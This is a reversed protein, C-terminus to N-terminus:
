YGKFPNPGMRLVDKIFQDILEPVKDYEDIAVEYQEVREPEIGLQNLTEAINEKRRNCIESGKVFHCQYDDGYKCGLLMVGDTGRSMADKIWIANVSGLCRVPMIRVFPSWHKGRIAAMDLAPYADNECAMILIRPGGENIDDPVNYQRVVDSMMGIGYNDFSIVREPCAGMCTGCRRCRNFNPLPTGKEDDDLAGFPCEETCRKCQTCRVFNFVPYSPDGSRPHVSVGRNVSELCQIAKLAAGAADETAYDMLMPQRVAGAAYVGTRRTEYPFCIYNSDTFGEFLALDPFAPGQRYDFHVVAEKASTPVIGTPLVVMDVAVEIDGGFLSDSVKVVLGGDAEEVATVRGKSLMMGPKDQASKYYKEYVGQVVMSDYFVYAISDDSKELVYNAQKLAVVSSVSNTMPLHQYGEWDKQEIVEVEVESHPDGEGEVEASLECEALDKYIRGGPDLASLDLIFAVKKAPSGDSPKAINGEKAMIEFERSTVVNKIAGYGLPKLYKTNQPKWGTAMVVSGVSVAEEGSGTKITATYQGPQGKLKTLESSKMVKIRENGEVEAILKDLGTDHAETYPHALPVTKYFNKAAGGLEAEREVLITDYGAKATNLAANLGTWGGGLVLITRNLEEVDLHPVKGTKLKAMGMNIYDKAIGVLEEPAEEDLDVPTGDADQYCLICQERLNVRETLVGDFTFFEWDYRPSSGCVLVADIEGADIDAQIMKRGEDSALVTASKVVSCLDGWKTQVHEELTETDLVPSLCSKDFYVGIKEAM